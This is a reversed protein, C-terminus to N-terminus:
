GPQPYLIITNRFQNAMIIYMDKYLIMTLVSTGIYM